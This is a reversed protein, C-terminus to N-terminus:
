CHPCSAQVRIAAQAESSCKSICVCIVHIQLRPSRLIFVAEDHYRPARLSVSGHMACVSHGRFNSPPPAASCAVSTFLVLMSTSCIGSATPMTLSVNLSFDPVKYGLYIVLTLYYHLLKVVSLVNKEICAKPKREDCKAGVATM